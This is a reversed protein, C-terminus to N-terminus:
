SRSLHEFYSVRTLDCRINFYTWFVTLNFLLIVRIKSLHEFYHVTLYFLLILESRALREFYSVTCWYTMGSTLIHEIYLLISSYSWKQDQFSTWLVSFYFFLILESRSLHEFYLLIHLLTLESRSHHPPNGASKSNFWYQSCRLGLSVESFM